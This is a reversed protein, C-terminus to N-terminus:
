PKGALGCFGKCPGSKYDFEEDAKQSEPSYSWRWAMCNSAICLPGHDLGDDETRARNASIVTGAIRVPVQAFPCWRKRAEDETM